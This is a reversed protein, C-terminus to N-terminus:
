FVKCLLFPMVQLFESSFDRTEELKLKALKTCFVRAFANNVLVRESFPPYPFTCTQPRLCSATKLLLSNPKAAPASFKEIDIEPLQATCCRFHIM